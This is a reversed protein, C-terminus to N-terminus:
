ASVKEACKHTILFLLAAGSVLAVPTPLGLATPIFGVGAAVGGAILAYPLQTQVHDLTDIGCSVSSVITTDSMPSCHDGFVAGSFVAAIVGYLISQADSPALQVTLKIATPVALPMLIGMTGWSTGTVFSIGAGVLFVCVPLLGAPLTDSLLRALAEAAHLEKLTSSLTWAGVLILVPLFLATLGRSFATGLDEGKGNRYACSFAVACGFGASCVLVLATDSKGFADALGSWTIPLPTEAGTLYLGTMLAVMLFALPVFARWSGIRVIGAAAIPTEANAQAQFRKMPGINWQRCITLAVLMLTFWCYFNLPISHLFLLYPNDDRGVQALGERIMSLQYAIWTSIFAICAVPASTSDVIYALRARSVGGRDALPRLVRGVLMSNALGDFFCILGLGFAACEIRAQAKGPRQTVARLIGALGGGAEILAVFGGMLLTFIIVSVNWSSQLSPVMHD